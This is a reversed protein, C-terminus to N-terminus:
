GAEAIHRAAGQLAADLAAARTAGGLEAVIHAAMFADGAGTVRAVRVPPPLATAVNGEALDAVTRPGDTVLARRLGIDALARAAETADRFSRGTIAEAEALNLYLTAGPHVFLPKLRAAKAPSAPVLRLDAAALAPLRAIAALAAEPLNGDLAVAGAWPAGADALRGDTLPALLDTGADELLRTEAVAAILGGPDELAVYFDTARNKLALIYAADVGARAVAALLMEGELDDGVASLLAPRLGLEALAAAINMAVGGARRIVRGPRDAGPPLPTASHGIVDWLLSGICLIDPRAPRM